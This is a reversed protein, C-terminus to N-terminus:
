TIPLDARELGKKALSAPASTDLTDGCEASKVLQMTDTAWNGAHKPLIDM